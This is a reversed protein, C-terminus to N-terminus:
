ATPRLNSDQRPRVRRLALGLAALVLGAGIMSEGGTSVIPEGPERVSGAGEAGLGSSPETAGPERGTEGATATTTTAPPLTTAAATTSPAGPEAEPVAETTEPAATDAGDDDDGPQVVAVAVAAVFLM